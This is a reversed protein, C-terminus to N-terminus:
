GDLAELFSGDEIGHLRRFLARAQPETLGTVFDVIVRRRLRQDDGARRLELRHGMPLREMACDAGNSGPEREAAELYYDLIGRVIKREGERISEMTSHEIVYYRTVHKLVEALARASPDIQLLEPREPIPHQALNAAEMLRRTLSVALRQLNAKALRTGDFPQRLRPAISYSLEDLAADAVTRDLVRCMRSHFSRAFREQEGASHALMVFPVMDCRYFDEVDHVAYAMDDSWDTFEAELSRQRTSADTEPGSVSKPFGERAFEFSNRDERYAGCKGHPQPADTDTDLWPYKLIGNLTDRTLNLGRLQVQLPGIATHTVIRFSQANGEFSIGFESMFDQIVVEAGHGFPPHGLDHALACTEVVDVDVGRLLASEPHRSKLSGALKRALGAVRLSHSLRNQTQIGREARVQTVGSLRQFEASYLIRDRDIQGPTRDPDSAPERAIRELGFTPAEECQDDKATRDLVLRQDELRVVEGNTEMISIALPVADESIEEEPATWDSQRIVADMVEAIRMPGSAAGLQTRVRIRAETVVDNADRFEIV